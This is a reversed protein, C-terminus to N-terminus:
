EGILYNDGVDLLTTDVGYKEFIAKLTGNDRLTKIDENVATLLEANGKTLPLGIQAAKVSAAVRDDPEAVTVVFDTGKAKDQSVAVSDFGLDIRGAQLDAWMEVNSPYIKMKGDMLTQMDENWLYGDVSGVNKTLMEPISTIGDKSVVGMGDLYIADSLDVIEAREATRYYCGVAMDTRGTQVSPVAASYAVETLEVELCEMAAIAQAIETDIGAPSDPVMSSFPPFEPVAISLKGETITSFTHAPTCGEAVAGGTSSEAPESGGSSCGALLAAVLIAAVAATVPKKM